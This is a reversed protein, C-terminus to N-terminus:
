RGLWREIAPRVRELAAGAKEFDLTMARIDELRRKGAGPSTDARLPFYAGSACLAAESAPTLLHDILRRAADPHPGNKILMVSTPLVLTGLGGPEQDPYSVAVPAGTAIAQDAHDSNTLGVFADGKAVLNKVEWSTTAVRVENARLADLFKQLEADGWHAALLAMQVLTTGHLPNPIALRGKWRPDALQRISKPETGARVKGTNVLLVRAQAGVGTWLGSEDKFADPITKREPSRYPAIAGRQALMYPRIPDDAWLVDVTPADKESLLRHLIGAAKIEFSSFSSCVRLGTESEFRRLIPDSFTQEVYTYVVVDCPDKACGLGCLAALAAALAGTRRWWAM